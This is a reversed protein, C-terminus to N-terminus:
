VVRGKTINYGKFERTAKKSKTDVGTVQVIPFGETYNSGRDTRILFDGTEISGADGVFHYEQSNPGFVASFTFPTVEELSDAPVTYTNGTGKEEFVKEGKSNTILVFGFKGEKTQYLTQMPNDEETKWNYTQTEVKKLISPRDDLIDRVKVILSRTKARITYNKSYLQKSPSYQFGESKLISLPFSTHSYVYATDSIGNAEFLHGYFRFSKLKPTTGSHNRSPLRQENIDHFKAM